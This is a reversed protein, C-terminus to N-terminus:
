SRKHNTLSVLQLTVCYMGGYVANNLSQIRQVRLLVRGILTSWCCQACACTYCHLPSPVYMSLFDMNILNAYPIARNLTGLLPPSVLLCAALVHGCVESYDDVYLCDVMLAPILLILSQYM